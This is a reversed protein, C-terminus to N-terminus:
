VGPARNPQVGIWKYPVGFEELTAAVAYVREQTVQQADISDATFAAEAPLVTINHLGRYTIEEAVARLLTAAEDGPTVAGESFYVEFVVRESDNVGYGPSRPAVPDIATILVTRESLDPAAAADDWAFDSLPAPDSAAATQASLAASIATTLCLAGVIMLRKM